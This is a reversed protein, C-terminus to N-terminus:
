IHCWLAIAQFSTHWELPLLLDSWSGWVLILSSLSTWPETRSQEPFLKEPFLGMRFVWWWRRVTPFSFCFSLSTPIPLILCHTRRRYREMYQGFISCCYQLVISEASLTFLQEGRPSGCSWVHVCVPGPKSRVDVALLHLLFGCIVWLSRFTLPWVGFTVHHISLVVQCSCSLLELLKLYRYVSEVEKIKREWPICATKFNDFDRNFKIM